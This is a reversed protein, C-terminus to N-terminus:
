SLNTPSGIRLRIARNTVMKKQLTAQPCDGVEGDVEVWGAWDWDIGPMSM